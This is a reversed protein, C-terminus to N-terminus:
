GDHSIGLEKRGTSGGFLLEGDLLEFIDGDLDDCLLGALGAGAGTMVGLGFSPATPLRASEFLPLVVVFLGFVVVVFLGKVVIPNICGPPIHFPVLLLEDPPPEDPVLLEDSLLPEDWLVDSLLRECLLEDDNSAPKNNGPIAKGLEDDIRVVVPDLLL